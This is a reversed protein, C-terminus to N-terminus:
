RINDKRVVMDEAMKKWIRHLFNQNGSKEESEVFHKYASEYEGVLFYAIGLNYNLAGTISKNIRAKKNDPDSKELDDKWLVIVERCKDTTEQNPKKVANYSKLIDPFLDKGKNLEDYDFKKPKVWLVIAGLKVKTYCFQDAAAKAMDIALPKTNSSM